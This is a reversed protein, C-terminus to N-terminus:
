WHAAWCGLGGAGSCWYSGGLKARLCLLPHESQGDVLTFGGVGRGSVACGVGGVGCYGCCGAEGGGVSTGVGGQGAGDSESYALDQYPRKGAALQWMCIGYSYVDAAQEATGEEALAEPASYAVTGCANVGGPAGQHGSLGSLGFDAVQLAARRDRHRRLRLRPTPSM